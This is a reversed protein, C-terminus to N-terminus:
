HVDDIDRRGYKNELYDLASKYEEETCVVQIQSGHITFIDAYSDKYNKTKDVPDIWERLSVFSMRAIASENVYTNNIVM